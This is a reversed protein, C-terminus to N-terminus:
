AIQPRTPLVGVNATTGCTIGSATWSTTGATFTAGTPSVRVLFYAWPIFDDPLDPFQPVAGLFAGVTTTVGVATPVISGQIMKVTGATNQGVVIVTAQNALVAPFAAATLGDTTPSASNTLAGVTTVFKGNILGATTVTTTLTSTTGLVFAPSVLNINIGNLPNFYAM